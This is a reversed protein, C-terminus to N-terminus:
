FFYTFNFALQNDADLGDVLNGVNNGGVTTNQYYVNGNQNVFAMPTERYNYYVSILFASEALTKFAFFHLNLKVASEHKFDASLCYNQAM